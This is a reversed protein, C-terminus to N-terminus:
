APLGWLQWAAWFRPDKRASEGARYAALVADAAGGVEDAAAVSAVLAVLVLRRVM